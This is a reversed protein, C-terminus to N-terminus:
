AAESTPLETMDENVDRVTGAGAIRRADIEYEIIEAATWGANALHHVDCAGFLATREIMTRAMAEAIRGRIRAEEPTAAEPVLITLTPASHRHPM